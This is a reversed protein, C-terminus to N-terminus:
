RQSLPLNSHMLYKDHVILFFDQFHHFSVQLLISIISIRGIGPCFGKLSEPCHVRIQDNEVQHQRIQRSFLDAPDDAPFGPDGDDHQCGFAMFLVPDGADGHSRVIVQDLGETRSLQHDSYSRYQPSYRERFWQGVLQAKMSIGEPDVCSLMQNHAIISQLPGCPMLGNLLGVFFPGYRGKSGYIKKGFVKPMSLNLRRLWPIINLMNLGMIMMFIGSLIAVIGKATGSFSIVSGFAGVVGGVLTYSVVRGVNYLFGPKLRSFRGTNGAEGNDGTNTRYAVSQSLNIGGCMAICHLSTLLGVAFLLGYGMSRDVQPIFHFGITNDIVLYLALALIGWGLLQRVTKGNRSAPPNEAKEDTGSIKEGVEKAPRYRVSYDLEEIAEIIRDLSIRHADYTVYVNSSSYIAKVRLVGDLKGLKNEIRMECNACSMGEVPLIKKQIMQEM